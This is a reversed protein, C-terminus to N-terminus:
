DSPPSILHIVPTITPVDSSRSTQSAFPIDFSQTSCGFMGDDHLYYEYTRSSPSTFSLPRTTTVYADAHLNFTWKSRLMLRVDCYYITLIFCEFRCTLPVLLAALSSCPCFAVVRFSLGTM